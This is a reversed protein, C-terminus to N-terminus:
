RLRSSAGPAPSSFSWRRNATYGGLLVILTAAAQAALWHWGLAATGAWVLGGNLLAGIAAVALFRPLAQRHPVSSGAFTWARNLVYALAAGLTAGAVSALGAPWGAAEVLGAMLAYHSATAMGGTVAYRGLARAHERASV